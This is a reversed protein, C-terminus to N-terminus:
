KAPLRAVGVVEVATFRQLRSEPHERVEVRTDGLFETVCLKHEQTVDIGFQLQTHEVLHLLRLQDGTIRHVIPNLTFAIQEELQQAVDVDQHHVIGLGALQGAVPVDIARRM